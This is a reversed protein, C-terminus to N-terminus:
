GHKTDGAWRPGEEEELLLPPPSGRPIGTDGSAVGCSTWSCLLCVPM